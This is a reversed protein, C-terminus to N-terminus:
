LDIHRSESSFSHCDMFFLLFLINAQNATKKLCHLPSLRLKKDSQAGARHQLGLWCQVVANRHIIHM